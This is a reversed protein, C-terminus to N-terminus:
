SEIPPLPPAAKNQNDADIIPPKPQEEIKTPPTAKRFIWLGALLLALGALDLWWPQFEVVPNDPTGTMGPINLPLSTFLIFLGNSIAHAIVCLAVSGTRLFFWGFAIGLFTASLFQWPNLHVAGFLLATLVVAVAPRYRSLLGRLIIGRFLLEETVPAVIMLLFIRSLVQGEPFFVDKLVDLLWKPPPAVYRFANDTESLLFDTGLVTIAVGVVQMAKIRGRLFAQRFNSRNLYLGLAIAGAFAALNVCGVLLPQRALHLPPKHMGQEIILDLVALPLALATQLGVVMVVLAVAMWFGLQTIRQQM